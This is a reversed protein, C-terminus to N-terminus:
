VCRSTYLLCCINIALDSTITVNYNQTPTYSYWNALTAATSSCATTSNSGSLASITHVGATINQATDCTGQANSIIGM